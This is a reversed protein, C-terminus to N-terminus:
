RSPRFEIAPAEAAEGAVMSATAPPRLSTVVLGALFASVVLVAVVAARRQRRVARLAACWRPLPRAEVAERNLYRCLDISLAAASAYRGEPSKDLAKAVISELDRPLMRGAAVSLRPPEVNVIAESLELASAGPRATPHAGTVLLYLMVGLSYADTATTPERLQVQEPAAFELTYVRRPASEQSEGQLRAIGFDLLKVQGEHTVLINSPKLDRHLIAKSHAHSVPALVDVFLRVRAQTDLGQTDCWADLPLGDIHELVLYPQGNRAVGADFLRAIAPHALSALISAERHFLRLGGQGMSALNLFKIAAKGEYRGDSRRASWVSGMGGRGIVSELTYSGVADGESRGEGPLV